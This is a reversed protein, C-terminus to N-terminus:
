VLISLFYLVKPDLPDNVDFAVLYKDVVKENPDKREQEQAERVARTEESSADDVSKLSPAQSVM